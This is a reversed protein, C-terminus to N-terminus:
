PATRYVTQKIAVVRPDLASARIFDLVPVFSQFPHHLLIDQRAITEFLDDDSVRLKGMERTIQLNRRMSRGLTTVKRGSAVAADIVQQM